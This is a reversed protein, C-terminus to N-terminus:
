INKSNLRRHIGREGPSLSYYIKGDTIGYLVTFGKSRDNMGRKSINLNNVHKQTRAVSSCFYFCHGKPAAGM